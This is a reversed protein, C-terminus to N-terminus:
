WGMVAKVFPITLRRQARLSATDLHDLITMLTAMDRQCRYHIFQAVDDTLQLGRQRARSQLVALRQEDNLPPIYYSAGSSLRSALDALQIPLTRVPRDAAILLATGTTTLRNFLHFLAEEWHDHGAIVQVDDLCVLSQQELSDFVANPTYCLLQQLPLYMPAYGHESAHQCAAQLLHSRGCGHRGHLYIYSEGGSLQRRLQDLLLRGRDAHKSSPLYDTFTAHQPWQLTLPLQQFLHNPMFNDTQKSDETV